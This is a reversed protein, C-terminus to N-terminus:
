LGHVLQSVNQRMIRVYADADDPATELTDLILLDLGFEDALTQALDPIPGPEIFIAQYKGTTIQQGLGAIDQLTIQAGPREVLHIGQELGYKNAFYAFSDHFAVFNKQPLRSLAISTEADLQGLSQVYEQTRASIKQAYEPFIKQLERSAYEIQASARVPDLWIHPDGETVAVAQSTDIVPTEPIQGAVDALWPELGAGNAVVAEARSVLDITAPSFSFSHVDAGGRILKEVQIEPELINRLWGAVHPVTAVVVPRGSFQIKQRQGLFWLGYIVAVVVFLWIIFAGIVRKTRRPQHPVSM